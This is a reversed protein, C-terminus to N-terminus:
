LGEVPLPKVDNSVMGQLWTFRDEGYIAIKGVDSRDILGISERVAKYQTEIDTM